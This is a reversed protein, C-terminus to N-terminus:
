HSSVLVKTLVATFKYVSYGNGYLIPAFSVTHVLKVASEKFNESKGLVKPPSLGNGVIKLAQFNM